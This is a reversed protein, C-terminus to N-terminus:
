GTRIGGVNTKEASAFEVRDRTCRHRGTLRCCDSPGPTKGKGGLRKRATNRGKSRIGSEMGETHLLWM